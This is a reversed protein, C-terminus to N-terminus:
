KRTASQFRGVNRPFQKILGLIKGEEWGGGGRVHNVYNM